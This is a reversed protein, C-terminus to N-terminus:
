SRRALLGVIRARTHRHHLIPYVNVFLNLILEIVADRGRGTMARQIALAFLTVCFPLHAAEFACTRYYFERAAALSTGRLTYPAMRAGTARRIVVGGTPIIRGFLHVGLWRFVAGGGARECAWPAFYLCVSRRVPPLWRGLRDFSRYLWGWGDDIPGRGEALQRLVQYEVM